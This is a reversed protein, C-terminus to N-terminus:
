SPAATDLTELFGNIAEIVEQPREMPLMHGADAIEVYAAQPQLEQWQQWAAPSLTDSQAGRMALTPQTLRPIDEWVGQPFRSYFQAEWERSYALTVEGESTDLLAGNVYAWLAEDSWRGFVPKPRFHDFAAQRDPWHTRRKRTRVVMPSEAVRQPDAAARELLQPEFFVPEILVLARFFHPAHAAVKMTAVAGLSHGVGIIQEYGQQELFRQLDDAILQWDEFEQPQSGPWLPRHHAAIVHYDDTLPQLLATFCAPPYANPHAFHLLSGRGGFDEFYITDRM